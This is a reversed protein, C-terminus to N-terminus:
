QSPLPVGQSLDWCFRVVSSVLHIILSIFEDAGGGRGASGERM